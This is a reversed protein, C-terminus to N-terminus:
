SKVMDEAYKKILIIFKLERLYTKKVADVADKSSKIFNDSEEACRCLLLRIYTWNNIIEAAAAALEDAFYKMVYQQSKKINIINNILEILEDSHVSLKDYDQFVDELNKIARHYNEIGFLSMKSENTFRQAYKHLYKANITNNKSKWHNDKCICYFAYPYGSEKMYRDIYGNCARHLDEESIRAPKYNLTNKNSHEYAWFDDAEYGYILLSHDLHEKQYTDKRIPEYFCDVNVIVPIQEGISKRIVEAFAETTSYGTLRMGLKNLLREYNEDSRYDFGINLTNSESHMYYIYTNILIPLISKNYYNAVAFVANYLCDQFFFETFPQLNAIMKKENM